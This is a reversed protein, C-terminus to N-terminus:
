LRDLYPIDRQWIPCLRLDPYSSLLQDNNNSRETGWSHERESALFPALQPFCDVDSNVPVSDCRDPNSLGRESVSYRSLLLHPSVTNHPYFQAFMRSDNNKLPSPWFLSSLTELQLKLWKQWARSKLKQYLLERDFSPVFSLFQPDYFSSHAWFITKRGFYWKEAPEYDWCPNTSCCQQICQSLHQIDPSNAQRFKEQNKSSQPCYYTWM